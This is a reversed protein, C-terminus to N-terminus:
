QNKTTKFLATEDLKSSTGGSSKYNAFRDFDAKANMSHNAFSEILVPQENEWKMKLLTKKSDYMEFLTGEVKVEDSIEELLIDDKHFNKEEFFLCVNEKIALRRKPTVRTDQEVAETPMLTLDSGFTVGMRLPNGQAAKFKNKARKALIRGAPDANVAASQKEIAIESISDFETDLLNEGHEIFDATGNNDLDNDIGRSAGYWGMTYAPMIGRYADFRVGTEDEKKKKKRRKRVKEVINPTKGFVFEEILCEKVINEIETLNFPTMQNIIKKRKHQGKPTLFRLPAEYGGGVSATTTLENIEIEETEELTKDILDM